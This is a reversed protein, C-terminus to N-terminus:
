LKNLKYSTNTLLLQPLVVQSIIYIATSRKAGSTIRRSSAETSGSGRNENNVGIDNEILDQKKWIWSLKLKSQKSHPPSINNANKQTFQFIHQWPLNIQQLIRGNIIDNHQGNHQFLNLVLIHGNVVPYSSDTVIWHPFKKNKGIFVM